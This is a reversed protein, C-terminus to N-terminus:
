TKPTLDHINPTAECVAQENERTMVCLMQEKRVGLVWPRLGSVKLWYGAPEGGEQKMGWSM